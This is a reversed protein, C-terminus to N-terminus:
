KVQLAFAAKNETENLGVLESGTQESECDMIKLTNGEFVESLYAIRISSIKQEELGNARLADMGWRLYETNNVHGSADLSSYQVKHSHLEKVPTSPRIRKLDNGFVSDEKPLLDIGFSGINVPKGTESDLIMWESSARIIEKGNEDCGSFDRFARLRKAGKSWTTLTFSKERVPLEDIEIRMSTLIWFCGKENLNTTGFGERDAHATAAEQLHCMLWHYHMKNDPGTEYAPVTSNIVLTDNM